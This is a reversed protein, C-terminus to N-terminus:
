QDHEGILALIEHAFERAEGRSVEAVRKVIGLKGSPVTFMVDGTEKVIHAGLVRDSEDKVWVVTGVRKVESM